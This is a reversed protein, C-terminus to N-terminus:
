VLPTLGLGPIWLERYMFGLETMETGGGGINTVEIFFNNFGWTPVFLIGENNAVGKVVVDGLNAVIGWDDVSFWTAAAAGWRDDSLPIISDNVISLALTGNVLRCPPGPGTRTQSTDPDMYGYVKYVANDNATDKGFARLAFANFRPNISFSKGRVAATIAAPDFLSISPTDDTTIM